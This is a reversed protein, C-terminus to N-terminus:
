KMKQDKQRKERKKYKKENKAKGEFINPKFYGFHEIKEIFDGGFPCTVIMINPSYEFNEILRYNNIVFIRGSVVSEYKM